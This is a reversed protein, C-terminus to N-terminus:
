DDYCLGRRVPHRKSQRDIKASLEQIITELRSIRSEYDETLEYIQDYLDRISNDADQLMDFAKDLNYAMPHHRGYQYLHAIDTKSQCKIRGLCLM